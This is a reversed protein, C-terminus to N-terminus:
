AEVGKRSWRVKRKDLLSHHDRCLAQLNSLRDDRKVSRRIIHHPDQALAGCRVYEGIAVAVPYECRDGCREWLEQKRLAWDKGHLMESGDFRVISKPDTYGLKRKLENNHLAM